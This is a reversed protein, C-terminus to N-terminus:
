WDFDRGLLEYLKQNHPKYFAHLMARTQSAMHGGPKRVNILSLQEQHWNYEPLDLFCTVETLVAATETKLRQSDIILIQDRDFYGFYRLLQEYYMGRRVYSPELNSNGTLISDIEDRIAQDFEPFSNSDVMKDVWQRIPEDCDRSVNLLHQPRGHFIRYMNWASYAREVPDRLL